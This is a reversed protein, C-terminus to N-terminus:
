PHHRMCDSSSTAVIFGFTWVLLSENISHHANVGALDYRRRDYASLTRSLICRKTPISGAMPEEQEALYRSLDADLFNRSRSLTVGPVSSSMSVLLLTVQFLTAVHAVAIKTNPQQGFNREPHHFQQCDTGYGIVFNSGLAVLMVEVGFM